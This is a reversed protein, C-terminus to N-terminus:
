PRGLGRVGTAGRAESPGTTLTMGLVPDVMDPLLARQHEVDLKSLFDATQIEVDGGSVVAEAFNKVGLQEAVQQASVEKSHFYEM